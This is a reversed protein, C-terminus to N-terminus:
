AEQYIGNITVIRGATLNAGTWNTGAGNRIRDITTGFAGGGGTLTHCHIGSEADNEAAITFAYRVARDIATPADVALNGVNSGAANVVATLSFTVTKESIRKYRGVNSTFTATGKNVWNPVWDTKWGTTGTYLDTRKIEFSDGCTLVNVASRWLNVDFAGGVPGWSLVMSAVNADYRIEGAVSLLADTLQIASKSKAGENMYLPRVSWNQGQITADSAIWKHIETATGDRAIGVHLQWFGGVLGSEAAIFAYEDSPGTPDAANFYFLIASEIPEAFIAQLEAPIKRTIVIRSDRPGADGPVTLEQPFNRFTM